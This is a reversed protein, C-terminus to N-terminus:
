CGGIYLPQIVEFSQNELWPPPTKPSQTSGSSPVSTWMGSGSLRIWCTLPTAGAGATRVFEVCTPRMDYVGDVMWM